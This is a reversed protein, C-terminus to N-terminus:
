RERRAREGDDEWGDCVPPRNNSAWVVDGNGMKYGANYDYAVLGIIGVPGDKFYRNKHAIADQYGMKYAANM